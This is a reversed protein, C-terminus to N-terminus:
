NKPAERLQEDVNLYNNFNPEAAATLGEGM